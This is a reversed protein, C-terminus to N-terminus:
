RTLAPPAILAPIPHGAGKGFDEVYRQLALQYWSMGFSRAERLAKNNDWHDHQIRYCAVAAGTRDAGRKCHVFVPSATDDNLLELVGTIQEDSPTAMGKMPISVYRMGDAEVTQQEAAESHEPGRLDIITKIGLRALSRFGEPTPQAGRYVHSDVEHFNPLGGTNQGAYAGAFPLCCSIFLAAGPRLGRLSLM